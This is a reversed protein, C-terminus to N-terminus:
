VPMFPEVKINEAEKRLETETLPPLGRKQRGLAVGIMWEQMLAFGKVNAEKIVVEDEDLAGFVPTYDEFIEAVYEPYYSIINSFATTMSRARSESSGATVTYALLVGEMEKMLIRYKVRHNGSDQDLLSSMSMLKTYVLKGMEPLKKHAAELRDLYATKGVEQNIIAQWAPPVVARWGSERELSFEMSRLKDKGKEYFGKYMAGEVVFVICKDTVPYEVGIKTMLTLWKEGGARDHEAVPVVVGRAQDAMKLEEQILRGIERSSFGMRNEGLGVRDFLAMGYDEVLKRVTDPVEGSNVLIIVSDGRDLKNELSEPFGHLTPAEETM